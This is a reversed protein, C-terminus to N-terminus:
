VEEEALQQLRLSSLRAWPERSEAAKAAAAFLRLSGEARLQSEAEDAAAQLQEWSWLPAAPANPDDLSFLDVSVQGAYRGRRCAIEANLLRM